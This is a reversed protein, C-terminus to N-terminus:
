QWGVGSVIALRQCGSSGGVVAAGVVLIWSQLWGGRHTTTTSYMLTPPLSPHAFSLGTLTPHCQHTAEELRSVDNGAKEPGDMDEFVGPFSKFSM